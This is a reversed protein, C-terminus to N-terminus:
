QHRLESRIAGMAIAAAEDATLHGALAHIAIGDLLMNLRQAVTTLDETLVAGAAVAHELGEELDSRWHALGAGSEVSATLGYRDPL